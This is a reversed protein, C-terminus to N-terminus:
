QATLLRRRRPTCGSVAWLYMASLALAGFSYYMRIEWAHDGGCATLTRGACGGSDQGAGVATQYQAFEAQAPPLDLVVVAATVAVMVVLPMALRTGLGRRRLVLLCSVIAVVATPALFAFFWIWAHSDGERGLRQLTWALPLSAAMAALM